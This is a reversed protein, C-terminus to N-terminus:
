TLKLAVRERIPECRTEISKNLIELSTCSNRQFYLGKVTVHYKNPSM